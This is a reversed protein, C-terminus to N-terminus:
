DAEPERDELEELLELISARQCAGMRCAIGADRQHREADAHQHEPDDIVHLEHDPQAVHPVLHRLAPEDVALAHKCRRQGEDGRHDQEHDADADNRAHDEANSM